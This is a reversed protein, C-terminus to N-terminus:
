TPWSGRTPAPGAPRNARRCPQWSRLRCPARSLGSSDRDARIARVLQIGDMPSMKHETIILNCPSGLLLKLAEKGSEAVQVRGSGLSLLMRRMANHAQPEAGVYLIDAKRLADGPAFVDQHGM